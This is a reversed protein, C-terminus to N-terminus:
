PFFTLCFSNWETGLPVKLRRIRAVEYLCWQIRKGYELAIRAVGSFSVNIAIRRTRRHALLMDYALSFGYAGVYSM